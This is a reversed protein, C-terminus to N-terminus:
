DWTELTVGQAAPLRGVASGGLHGLDLIRLLKTINIKSIKKQQLLIAKGNTQFSIDIYSYRKPLKKPIFSETLYLVKQQSRHINNIKFANYLSAMFMLVSYHFSTNSTAIQHEKIKQFM